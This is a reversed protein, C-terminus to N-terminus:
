RVFWHGIPIHLQVTPARAEYEPSESRTIRNRSVKFYDVVAEKWTSKMGDDNV